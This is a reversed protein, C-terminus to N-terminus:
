TKFNVQRRQKLISFNILLITLIPVLFIIFYALYSVTVIPQPGKLIFVGDGIPGQSFIFIQTLNWGLHIACPIYLSHTKSYGYAYLVGMTGTVVFIIAMQLINGFAGFSFWHYIGFAIASMAIAKVPGLKKLLIYFIAGRFILEEFLVSKINWWVAKFIVTVTLFPNLEWHERAFYMRLFFGTSCCVATILFFLTFDLLRRKTPYFGLFSLNGKEFFWVLLWSIILQVLIGLM